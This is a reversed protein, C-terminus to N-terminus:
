PWPWYPKTLMVQKNRRVKADEKSSLSRRRHKHRIHHKKHRHHITVSPDSLQVDDSPLNAGFMPFATCSISLMLATLLLTWILKM